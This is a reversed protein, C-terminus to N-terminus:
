GLRDSRACLAAFKRAAGAVDAADFLASIVALADVGARLLEAANDLTIGGIAVVPLAITRKAESVLALPARTAGPKTTSAFFSGFAVYDAGQKRADVARAIDGYCSVGLLAHPLRARAAAVDGDDRGLHLGPAVIAAALETDDNIILPVQAAACIPLLARAQELRLTEGATKNRYQVLQAGGALAASVLACLRATDAEDPTVAYLGSIARRNM